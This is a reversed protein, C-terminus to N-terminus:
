NKRLSLIETLYLAGGIRTILLRRFNPAGRGYYAESSAGWEKPSFVQFQQRVRELVAGVSRPCVATGVQGAPLM